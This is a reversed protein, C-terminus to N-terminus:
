QKCTKRFYAEAQRYAQVAKQEEPTSVRHQRIMASVDQIIDQCQTILDKKELADKSVLWRAMAKDLQRTQTYLLETDLPKGDDWSVDEPVVLKCSLRGISDVYQNYQQLAAALDPCSSQEERATFQTLLVTRTEQFAKLADDSSVEGQAYNARFGEYAKQVDKLASTAAAIDEDKGLCPNRVIAIQYKLNLDRGASLVYAGERKKRADLLYVDGLTVSVATRKGQIDFTQEIFDNVMKYESPAPQLGEYDIWRSFIYKCNPGPISRRLHRSLPFRTGEGADAVYPLREPRLQGCRVVTKYRSAERFVFLSRYSLLSVTLQNKPEDFVFKIMVDMDRSDQALSVHDTYSRDASVAITKVTQGVAMGASLCLAALAFLIKHNYIKSMM